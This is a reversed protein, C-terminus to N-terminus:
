KANGLGGGLKNLLVPTSITTTKTLPSRVVKKMFKPGSDPTVENKQETRFSPRNLTQLKSEAPRYTRTEPVPGADVVTKTIKVPMEHLNGQGM